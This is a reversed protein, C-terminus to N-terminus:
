PAAQQRYDLRWGTQRSGPRVELQWHQAQLGQWHSPDTGEEQWDPPDPLRALRWSWGAPSQACGPTEALVERAPACAMRVTGVEARPHWLSPADAVAPVPLRELTSVLGQLRWVAALRRQEDRVALGEGAALRLSAQTLEATIGMLVLFLWLVHGAEPRQM